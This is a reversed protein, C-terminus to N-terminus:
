EPKEQNVRNVLVSYKEWAELDAKEQETAMGYTVARALLAIIREAEALLTQKQTGNIIAPDILPRVLVPKGSQDPEIEYGNEQGDMLSRYDEASIEAADAPWGNLSNEYQEKMSLRYFGQTTASYFYQEDM